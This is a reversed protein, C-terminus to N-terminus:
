DEILEFSMEHITLRDDSDWNMFSYAIYEKLEEAEDLTEAVAVGDDTYAFEGDPLLLAYNM